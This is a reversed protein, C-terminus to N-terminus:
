SNTVRQFAQMPAIGVTKDGSFYLVVLGADPRAAWCGEFVKGKESWTARRPLNTVVNTLQCPESHLTVTAGDAETSYMPEARLNPVFTSLVLVSLIAWYRLPIITM